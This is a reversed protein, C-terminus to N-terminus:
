VSSSGYLKKDWGGRGSLRFTATQWEDEGNKETGVGVCLWERGAPTKPHGPPQCIEGVAYDRAEGKWKATAEGYIEYYETVGRMYYDRVEAAAGSLKGLAVRLCCAKGGYVVSSLMPAGSELERLLEADANSVTSFYRPHCLLPEPQASFSTTYVPNEATGLEAEEQAERYETRTVTLIGIEGGQRECDCTVAWADAETGAEETAKALVHAWPGTYTLVEKKGTAEGYAAAQARGISYRRTEHERLAINIYKAM